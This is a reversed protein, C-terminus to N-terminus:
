IRPNYSGLRVFFFLRHGHNPRLSLNAAASFHRDSCWWPGYYYFWLGDTVGGYNDRRGITGGLRRNDHQEGGNGAARGERITVKAVDAHAEKM